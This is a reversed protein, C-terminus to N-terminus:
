ERTGVLVEPHHIWQNPLEGERRLVKEWTYKAKQVHIRDRKIKSAVIKGDMLRRNIAVSWWKKIENNHHTKDQIVQECRLLAPWSHVQPHGPDTGTPWSLDLVWVQIQAPILCRTGLSVPWTGTFGCTSMVSGPWVPLATWTHIYYKSVWIMIYEYRVPHLWPEYRNIFYDYHITHLGYEYNIM